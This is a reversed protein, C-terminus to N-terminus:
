LRWRRWQRLQLLPHMWLRSRAARQRMRLGISRMEPRADDSTEDADRSRKAQADSRTASDAGTRRRRTGKRRRSRGATERGVRPTRAPAFVPPTPHTTRAAAAGAEDACGGGPVGVPLYLSTPDGPSTRERSCPSHLQALPAERQTQSEHGRPLGLRVVRVSTEQEKDSRRRQRPEM